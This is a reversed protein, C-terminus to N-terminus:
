IKKVSLVSFDAKVGRPGYLTVLKEVRTVKKCGSTKVCKAIRAEAEGRRAEGDDTAEEYCDAECSNEDDDLHCCM